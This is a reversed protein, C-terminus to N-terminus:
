AVTTVATWTTAGNTNIYMRTSTSSGDTRMYLSGQAASLTPVGSGFFVGLNTGSGLTMGLGATGGVPVASATAVKLSNAVSLETSTLQLKWAGKVQTFGGVYFQHANVTGTNDTAYVLNGTTGSGTPASGFLYSENPGTCTYVPDAYALSTVGMDVWGHADTGNSPYCVHDASSSAGNTVNYIYNQVYNNAGATVLLIPNTAGPLVATTGVTATTFSGSNAVAPDELLIDTVTQTTIGTKSITLTYRGDTAYFSFAGLADTTLPNSAVTIGNDQYIIPTGGAALTVAVSAGVLPQGSQTLVTDRYKQM